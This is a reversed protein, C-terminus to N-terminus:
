LVYEYMAFLIKCVQEDEYTLHTESVKTFGVSEYLRCAPTNHAFVDLRLALMGKARAYEVLYRLFTKGIGQGKRDPHTAFLHICLAEEDTAEADWPQLEYGYAFDHNVMATAVIKGKHLALIQEGAELAARIADDTPHLDRRWLVDFQTGSNEAIVDDYFAGVRELDDPTGIVFELNDKVM